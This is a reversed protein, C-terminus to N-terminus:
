GIDLPIRHLESTRTMTPGHLERKLGLVWVWIVEAIARNAALGIAAAAETDIEAAVERRQLDFPCLV